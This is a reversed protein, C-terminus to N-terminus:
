SKYGGQGSSVSKSERDAADAQQRARLITVAARGIAIAINVGVLALVITLAVHRPLLALSFLLIFISVGVLLKQWLRLQAFEPFFDDKRM